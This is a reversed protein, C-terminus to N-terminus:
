ASAPEALLKRLRVLNYAACSSAFIAAAKGNGRHRLTALGGVTKMWSFLAGRGAQPPAPLRCLWGHRATRRDIASFRDKATGHSRIKLARVDSVFGRMGYGRDAGVSM